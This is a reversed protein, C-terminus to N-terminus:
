VAEQKQKLTKRKAVVKCSEEHDAELNILQLSFPCFEIQLNCIALMWRDLYLESGIHMDNFLFKALAGM